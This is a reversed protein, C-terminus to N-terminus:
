NTKLYRRGKLPILEEEKGDWSQSRRWILRDNCWYYVKGAVLKYLYSNFACYHTAEIKM